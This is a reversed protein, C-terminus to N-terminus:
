IKGPRDFHPLVHAMHCSGFLMEATEKIELLIKDTASTKFTGGREPIYHCLIKGMTKRRKELLRNGNYTDKMYIQVYSDLCFVERGLNANRGYALGLYQEDLVSSILEADVFGRYSLYHLTSPLCKPYKMIEPVRNKLEALIKESITKEIGCKSKFDFLGLAFSIREMEKLRTGPVDKDFRHLIAEVIDSHCVQMDTGLLLVHLCSMLSLRPIQAMLKDLLELMVEVHPLRSSYRLTKVVNVFSIDQVTKLDQILRRYIETILVPNKIPTQTKFFGMCMVAIEDISMRGISQVMNVEFGIMDVIPSRLLNCYFMTQVLHHPALKRLRRGLKKNAEWNFKNVKGLNLIYWHDCVLLIRDIDWSAIREVCADDLCNWLEVFNKTNLSNTEPIYVITKLAVLLQEDTFNFCIETFCDIFCDFKDDSISINQDVCQKVVWKLHDLVDAASIDTWDDRQANIATDLFSLTEQRCINYNPHVQLINHAYRNENDVFLKAASCPTTHVAKASSRCIHNLVNSFNTTAQHRTLRLLGIM